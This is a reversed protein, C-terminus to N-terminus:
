KTQGSGEQCRGEKGKGKQQRERGIQGQGRLPPRRNRGSQANRGASEAGHRCGNGQQQQSAGVHSDQGEAGQHWDGKQHQPNQMGAGQERARWGTDWWGCQNRWNM